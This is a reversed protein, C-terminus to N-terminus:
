ARKLDCLEHAADHDGGRGLTGRSVRGEPRGRSHVREQVASAAAASRTGPRPGPRRPTPELVRRPRAGTTPTTGDQGAPSDGTVRRGTSKLCVLLGEDELMALAKRVTARSCHHLRALDIEGPVLAGIPYRGTTIKRRIEAAVLQYRYDRPSEAPDQSRLRWGKHPVVAVIGLEALAQLARRVTLRSCHFRATLAHESPLFSGPPHAGQAIRRLLGHAVQVHLGPGRIQGLADNLSTPM